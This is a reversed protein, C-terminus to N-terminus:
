RSSLCLVGCVQVGDFCTDERDQRRPVHLPGIRTHTNIHSAMDSPGPVLSSAVHCFLTMADLADEFSVVTM